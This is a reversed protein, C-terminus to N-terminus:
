PAADRRHSASRSASSRGTCYKGYLAAGARTSVGIKSYLNQIHHDATKPAIELERAAEKPGDPRPVYCSSAMFSDVM